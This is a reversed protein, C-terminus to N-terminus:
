WGVPGSARRCVARARAGAAGASRRGRQQWASSGSPAVGPARARGRPGTGSSEPCGHCPNLRQCSFRLLALTLGTVAELVANTVDRGCGEGLRSGAGRRTPRARESELYRPSSPAARSVPRAPGDESRGLPSFARPPPNDDGRYRGLGGSGSSRRSSGM